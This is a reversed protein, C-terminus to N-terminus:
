LRSLMKRGLFNESLLKKRFKRVLRGEVDKATELSMHLRHQFGSLIYSYKFNHLAITHSSIVEVTCTMFEKRRRKANMVKITPSHFPSFPLMSLQSEECIGEAMATNNNNRLALFSNLTQQFSSRSLYFHLCKQPLAMSNMRSGVQHITSFNRTEEGEERARDDKNTQSYNADFRCQARLEEGTM